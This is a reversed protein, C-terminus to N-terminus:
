IDRSDLYCNRFRIEFDSIKNENSNQLMQEISVLQSNM